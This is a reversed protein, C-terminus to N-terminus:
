SCFCCYISALIHYFLLGWISNTLICIVAFMISPLISIGWFALYLVAMQDLSVVGPCRDSLVYTLICHLCKCVSRELLVTWLPWAITPLIIITQKREYTSSLDL